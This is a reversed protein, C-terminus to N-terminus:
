LKESSLFQLLTQIASIVVSPLTPMVCFVLLVVNVMLGIPLPFSLLLTLGKTYLSYCCWFIIIIKSTRFTIFLEGHKDFLESSYVYVEDIELSMIIILM